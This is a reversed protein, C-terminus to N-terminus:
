SYGGSQSQSRASNKNFAKGREEFAGEERKGETEEKREERARITGLFIYIFM